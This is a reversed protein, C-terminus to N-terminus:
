SIESSILILILRMQFIQEPYIQKLFCPVGFIRIVHYDARNLIHKVVRRAVDNDDVLLVRPGAVDAAALGPGSPCGRKVLM